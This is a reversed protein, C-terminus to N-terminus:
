ECEGCSSFCRDMGITGKEVVVVIIEAVFHFRVDRDKNGTQSPNTCPSKRVLSKQTGNKAWGSRDELNTKEETKYKLTGKKLPIHLLEIFHAERVCYGKQRNACIPSALLSRSPVSHSSYSFRFTDIKPAGCSSDLPVPNFLSSPTM